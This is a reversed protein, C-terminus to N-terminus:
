ISLARYSSDTTYVEYYGVYGVGITKMTLGIDILIGLLSSYRLRYRDIM